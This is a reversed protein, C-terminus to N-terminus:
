KSDSIIKRPVIDSIVDRSSFLFPHESFVARVLGHLSEMTKRCGQEACALICLSLILNGREIARVYSCM